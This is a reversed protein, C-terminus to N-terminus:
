RCLADAFIDREPCGALGRNVAEKLKDTIREAPVARFLNYAQVQVSMSPHTLFQAADEAFLEPAPHALVLTFVLHVEDLDNLVDHLKILEQQPVPPPDYLSLSRLYERPKSSALFKEASFQPTDM